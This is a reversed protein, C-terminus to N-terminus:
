GIFKSVESFHATCCLHPLSSQQVCLHSKCISFSTLIPFACALKIELWIKNLATSRTMQLVLSLPKPVVWLKDKQLMATAKVIQHTYFCTSWPTSLWGLVFALLFIDLLHQLTANQREVVTPTPPHPFSVYDEFCGYFATLHSTLILSQINEM